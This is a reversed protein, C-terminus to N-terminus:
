LEIGSPENEGKYMLAGDTFPPSIIQGGVAWVAGSPDIWVAHFDADSDFGIDEPQWEGDTQRLVTGQM